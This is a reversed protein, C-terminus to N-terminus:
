QKRRYILETDHKKYLTVQSSHKGPNTETYSTDQSSEQRAYYAKHKGTTRNDGKTKIQTKRCKCEQMVPIPFFELVLKSPYM